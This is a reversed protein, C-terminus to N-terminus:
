YKCCHNFKLQSLKNKKIQLASLSLCFSGEVPENLDGGCLICGLGFQSGPSGSPRPCLEKIWGLQRRPFVEVSFRSDSTSHLGSDGLSLGVSCEFMWGADKVALGVM